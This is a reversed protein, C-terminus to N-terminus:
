ETKGVLGREMERGMRRLRSLRGLNEQVKGDMSEITSLVDM